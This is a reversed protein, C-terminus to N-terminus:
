LQILSRGTMEDPIEIGLMSLMTPAIDRLSCDTRLKHNKYRESVLIFPVLNTTHATFPSGTKPSIMMECNGHDATILITGNKELVKDVVQQLCNDVTKVAQVAADLVGTHGIMDPNAYNIIVVDYYDRDIERLLKETVEIASMEPKQNYTPVEPSPVLIRDEGPNPEEVGGNFFFTVHAYKETEAIRLQKKGKEGLVEGLTNELNQPPFAVPAPINVDYQTM